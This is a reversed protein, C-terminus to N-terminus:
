RVQTFNKALPKCPLLITVANALLSLNNALPHSNPREMLSGTHLQESISHGPSANGLPAGM